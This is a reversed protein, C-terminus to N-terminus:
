LFDKSVQSSGTSRFDNLTYESPNVLYLAEIWQRSTFISTCVPDFSVENSVFAKYPISITSCPCSLELGYDSRLQNFLSPTINPITVVLTQPNM